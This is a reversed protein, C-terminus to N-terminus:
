GFYTVGISDFHRPPPMVKLSPESTSSEMPRQGPTGVGRGGIVGNETSPPPPGEGWAAAAVFVVGPPAPGPHGGSAGAKAARRPATVRKSASRSRREPRNALPM